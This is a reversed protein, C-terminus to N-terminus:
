FYGFDLMLYVENFLLQEMLWFDGVFFQRNGSTVVLYLINMGAYAPLSLM